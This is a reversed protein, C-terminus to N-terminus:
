EVGALAAALREMTDQPLRDLAAYAAQGMACQEETSLAELGTGEIVGVAGGQGLGEDLLAAFYLDIDQQTPAERPHPDRRGAAIARVNAIGSQLIADIATGSVQMGPPLVSVAFTACLGTNERALAQAVALRADIVDYLEDEPASAIHQANSLIVQMMYQHGAAAVERESMGSETMRVMEARFGAYEEPMETRMIDYLPAAQPDTHLALEIREDPDSWRMFGYLALGLIALLVAIGAFVSIRQLKSGVGEEGYAM